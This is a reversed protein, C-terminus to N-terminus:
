LLVCMKLVCDVRPSMIDLRLFPCLTYMYNSSVAYYIIYNVVQDIYFPVIIFSLIGFNQNLTAYDSKNAKIDDFYLDSSVDLLVVLLCSKVSSM